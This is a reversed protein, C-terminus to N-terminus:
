LHGIQGQVMSVEKEKSRQHQEYLKGRAYSPM